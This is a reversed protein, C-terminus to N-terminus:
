HTDGDHLNSKLLVSKTEIGDLRGLQGTLAGIQDTSGELLLSIVSKGYALLRVGQRGIIIDSHQSIVQNLRSVVERNTVLILVTGIRLEM